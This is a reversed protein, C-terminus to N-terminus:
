ATLKVTYTGAAAYTYTPNQATSDTTGDNNFDWAWTTPSNTSSDTFLVALPAVGSTRNATFNAVPAVPAATVTIYNTKTATNPGAGNSATLKVTYTGAAAYTYTPNQTTADTTGDNNFDWAWTTPSNTSSDTFLVALPAVGSTRNATFNAVPTTPIPM